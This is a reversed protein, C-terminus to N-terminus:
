AATSSILFSSFLISIFPLITIPSPSNSSAGISYILSFTPVRDPSSNSIATSGKSPVFKVAFFRGFAKDTKATPFFSLSKFAGSIYISFNAIPDPNGLFM